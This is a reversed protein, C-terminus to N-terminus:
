NFINNNKEAIYLRSHAAHAPPFFFFKLALVRDHTL